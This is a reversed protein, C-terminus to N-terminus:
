LVVSGTYVSCAADDEDNSLYGMWTEALQGQRNPTELIANGSQRTGADFSYVAENTAPFYAVLIAKDTKKSTGTGTNDTWTFQINGSDTASAAANRAPPLMGKSILVLPYSITVGNDSSVLALSMLASVARNYGSGTHGFAPFTKTFFGKGAFAKAFANCVTIKSRQALRKATPKVTGRNKASRIVDIGYRNYGTVTGVRGQIGGLIGNPITAM